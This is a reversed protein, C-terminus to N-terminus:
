AHELAALELADAGGARSPGVHTTFRFRHVRESLIRNDGEGRDAGLPRFTKGKWPFASTGAFRRVPGAVRDPLVVTALM